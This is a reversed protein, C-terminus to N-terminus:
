DSSFIINEGIKVLLDSVFFENLITKLEEIQTISLNSGKIRIEM